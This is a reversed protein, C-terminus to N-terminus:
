HPARTPPAPAAVGARRRGRQVDISPKIAEAHAFGLEGASTASASSMAPEVDRQDNAMEGAGVVRLVRHVALLEGYEIAQARLKRLRAGTEGRGVPQHEAFVEVEIEHAGAVRQIAALRRRLARRHQGTTRTEARM